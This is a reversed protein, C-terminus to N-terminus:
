IGTGKRVSWFHDRPFVRLKGPVSFAGADGQRAPVAWLCVPPANTVCHYKNLGGKKDM